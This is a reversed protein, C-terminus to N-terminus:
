SQLMVLVKQIQYTEDYKICIIVVVKETHAIVSESFDLYMFVFFKAVDVASKLIHINKEYKLVNCEILEMCLKYIRFSTVKAVVLCFDLDNTFQFRYNLHLTINKGVISKLYALTLIFRGTVFRGILVM